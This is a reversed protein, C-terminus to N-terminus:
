KKRAVIWQVSDDKNWLKSQLIDFSESVIYQDLSQFTFSHINPAMGGKQALAIAARFLRARGGLCPTQSILLGDKTLLLAIRSMAKQPNPLLHFINFAIIAHFSTPELKTDFLDIQAFEINALQRAAAKQQALEIMKASSDIGLIHQAHPALDMSMEGSACGLDLVIDSKNLLVATETITQAYQGDHNQINVDYTEAQKDWFTASM